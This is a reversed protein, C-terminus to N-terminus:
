ALGMTQFAATFRHEWTHERLARARGATAIARRAEDHALYHRCKELLEKRSRWTEIEVGPIFFDTLEDSHEALYFGGSMPVEFDRLRVQTLRPAAQNEGVTAFGLNVRARSYLEVLSRDDLVGGVADAPLGHSKPLWRRLPNRTPPAVHYEWRAGWVRVDLGQERLWLVTDPRDAYCQGAFAVDFELPVDSPQYVRPNAAEQCYIPHAGLARYDELRFREPVLCWDYHPAIQSVLHLQYSANCFWNVTVIGLARIADLVAPEVCADYFYSFFLQVPKEAHAARIQALLAKGLRPRNDTIFAAAEPRAPDLHRFTAALDYRFEVVDHGLSVLSDHLNARWLQSAFDPNPSSDAAYFIRM